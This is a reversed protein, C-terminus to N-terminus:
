LPPVIFDAQSPKPIPRPDRAELAIARSAHMPTRMAPTAHAALPDAATCLSSAGFPDSKM